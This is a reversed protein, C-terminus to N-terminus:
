RGYSISIAKEKYLFINKLVNKLKKKKKKFFFLSSGSKSWRYKGSLQPMTFVVTKCRKLLIGIFAALFINQSNTQLQTYLTTSIPFIIQIEFM